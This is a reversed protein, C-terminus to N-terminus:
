IVHRCRCRRIKRTGTLSSSPSIQSMSSHDWVTVTTRLKSDATPIPRGSATFDILPYRVSEDNVVSIEHIHRDGSLLIVGGKHSERIMELLRSRSRPFNGWNEFRQDLALMQTGSGILTFHATSSNLETRLFDWQSEGLIDAEPGPEDAFYRNDLLILKVQRGLPGFTYV